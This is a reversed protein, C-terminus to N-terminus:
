NKLFYERVLQQLAPRYKAPMNKNKKQAEKLAEEENECNGALQILNDYYENIKQLAKEYLKTGQSIEEAAKKPDSQSNALAEFCIGKFRSMIANRTMKLQDMAGKVELDNELLVKLFDDNNSSVRKPASNPNEEVKGFSDDLPLDSEQILKGQALIVSSEIVQSLERINGPWPFDKLREMAEESIGEVENENEDKYKQFFYQALLEIDGKRERLPPLNIILGKLRHYLDERFNNEKIEKPLDKNTACVVRVDVKITKEGGVRYFEKEQLARLLKVQVALSSEGMEDLFITGRDALEFKGRKLKDAGSFSGKEHGFLESEILTDQMQSMNVEIFPNDVRPSLRHLAEAFLEKGTGTEGIILVTKTSKAITKLTQFVKLTRTDQTIINCERCEMEIQRLDGQLDEENVLYVTIRSKLQDREKSLSEKEKLLKDMATNLQHFNEDQAQQSTEMDKKMGGLMTEIKEIEKEKEWLQKETKQRQALLNEAEQQESKLRYSFVGLTSIILASIPIFVPLVVGANFVISTALLYFLSLSLIGVISSSVKRLTFTSGVALGLLLTLVINFGQFSEKLFNQTLITNMINAHIGPGPYRTENPIQKIDFGTITNAVLFIKGTVTEEKAPSNTSQSPVCGEFPAEALVCAFSTKIFTTKWPGAYNILMQGKSDVPIQIDSSQGNPFTAQNLQISGENIKINNESVKLYKLVTQLALSPLIQNQNRVLLPIRRIIGDEDRNFGIHGLGMAADKLSARPFTLSKASLYNYANPSDEIGVSPIDGGFTERSPTENQETLSAIFPYIVNGANQTARVLSNGDEKSQPDFMVDYAIIGAGKSKLHDIMSAHVDWKWRWSGFKKVSLDDANILILDPSTAIPDRLSFRADITKQEIKKSFDGMLESLLLAALAGLFGIILLQKKM